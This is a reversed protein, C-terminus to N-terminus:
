ELEGRKFKELCPPCLDRYNTKGPSYSWGAKRATDRAKQVLAGRTRSTVGHVWDSCNDCFVDASFVVSM